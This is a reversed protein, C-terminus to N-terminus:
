PQYMKAPTAPSDSREFYTMLYRPECTKLGDLRPSTTANMTSPLVRM